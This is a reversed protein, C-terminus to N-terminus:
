DNTSRQHVVAPVRGTRRGAVQRAHRPIVNGRRDPRREIAPRLAGGGRGARRSPDQDQLENRGARHATRGTTAVRHGPGRGRRGPREICQRSRGASGRQVDSVAHMAIAFHMVQSAVLVAQYKRGAEFTRGAMALERARELRGCLDPLIQEAFGVRFWWVQFRRLGRSAEVLETARRILLADLQALDHPLAPAPTSRIILPCREKIEPLCALQTALGFVLLSRLGVRCRLLVSRLSMEHLRCGTREM